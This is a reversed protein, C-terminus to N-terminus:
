IREKYMVMHTVTTNAGTAKALVRFGTTFGIAEYPRYRFNKNATETWIPTTGSTLALSSGLDGMTIRIRETGDIEIAVEYNSTTPNTVAVFTLVGDGTYSDLVTDSASTLTDGTADYNTKLQYRTPSENNVITANADVPVRYIMDTSDYVMDIKQTNDSASHLSVDKSYDNIDAM